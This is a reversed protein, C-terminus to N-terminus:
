ITVTKFQANCQSSQASLANPMLTTGEERLTSMGDAREKAYEGLALCWSIILVRAYGNLIQVVRSM